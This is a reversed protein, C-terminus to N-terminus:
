YADDDAGLGFNLDAFLPDEEDLSLEDEFLEDDEDGLVGKKKPTALLDDAEEELIPDFEDSM